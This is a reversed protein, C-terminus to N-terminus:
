LKHHILEGHDLCYLSGERYRTAILKSMSDRIEGTMESFKTEKGRKSASIVSVLNYALNPVFLADHFTCKNVKHHPLNMTLM